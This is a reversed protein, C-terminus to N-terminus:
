DLAGAPTRADLLGYLRTVAPVFWSRGTYLPMTPFSRRCFVTKAGESGLNSHAARQGLYNGVAVGAFCYVLVYHISHRQPVGVHRFMDFM